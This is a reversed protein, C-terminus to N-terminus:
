ETAHPVIRRCQKCRLRDSREISPYGRRLWEGYCSFSEWEGDVFTASQQNCYLRRHGCHPHAQKNAEMIGVEKRVVSLVSHAEITLRPHPSVGAVGGEPSHERASVIATRTKGLDMDDALIAKRRSLLFAVGTTQHRFLDPYGASVREAAAVLFDAATTDLAASTM